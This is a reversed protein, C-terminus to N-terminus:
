RIVTFLAADDHAADYFTFIFDPNLDTQQLAKSLEIAALPTSRGSVNLSQLRVM